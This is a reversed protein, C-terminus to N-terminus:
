GQAPTDEYQAPLTGAASPAPTAAAGAVKGSGAFLLFSLEEFLCVFLPMWM